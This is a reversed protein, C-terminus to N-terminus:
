KMWGLGVFLRDIANMIEIFDDDDWQTPYADEDERIDNLENLMVRNGSKTTIYQSYSRAWLETPDLLYKVHRKKTVRVTSGDSLTLLGTKYIKDLEKYINSSTVAKWWDGMLGNKDFSSSFRSDTGMGSLDIFHGVEHAISCMPTKGQQSVNIETAKYSDRVNPNKTCILQANYSKARKTYIDITPLNGDGHVSDIVKLTDNANQAQGGPKINLATSIPKGSPQYQTLPVIPADPSSPTQQPTNSSPATLKKTLGRLSIGPVQEREGQRHWTIGDKEYQTNMQDIFDRMRAQWKGLRVRESDNELGAAELAGAQRKWDRIQREIYRQEQTAEYVSMEKGNYIVTKDAYEKLQQETYARESVGDYFPYFSHRCNWGGLGEGTGFGTTEAFNKYRADAGVRKYVRGQWSEHNAPGEGTNRAGIHASVAIHELGMQEAREMQMQGATQSIGTLVTRRLAVDVQEQRGSAYNIVRLGKSTADKVANRIATIYDFAGSTVQMYALDAADLFAGQASLATSLTLNRMVGGTKRLGESLVRTMAPSLNLPMPKLGAARYIEDDFRTARVGAKQFAARLEKESLGTLKSLEDLAREYVLGSETLRQMQWATSSTVKMGGLRRAIDNLVSQSYREYLELIPDVLTDLQDFTIM